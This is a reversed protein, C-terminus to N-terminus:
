KYFNQIDPLTSSKRSNLAKLAQTREPGPKTTEIGATELTNTTFGTNGYERLRSNQAKSHNDLASLDGSGKKSMGKKTKSNNIQSRPSNEDKRSTDDYNYKSTMRGHDDKSPSLNYGSQDPSLKKSSEFVNMKLPAILKNTKNSSQGLLFKNRM